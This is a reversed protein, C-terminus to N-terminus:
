SEVGLVDRVVLDGGPEWDFLMLPATAGAALEWSPLDLLERPRASAMDIAEKLSVGAMWAAHGVCVDTFVGSGALFPTGPVVVKGGPQVEFESGWESYRGPPLGALSSADCTIIARSPSKVRVIAKVISAPLHHGDPIFSAWLEDAGLQEWVYNDHRPLGHSGNGLHTSLRAGASIADRIASRDGRHSWHGRGRGRGRCRSSSRYHRAAGSGTHCGIRSGGAADQLYCFEDPDPDRVYERMRTARVMRRPFTRDKSTFAPCLQQLSRTRTAHGSPDRVWSRPGRSNTILAAATGSHGHRRCEDITRAARRHDVALQVRDGPLRQDSPRVAAPAVWGAERDPTESGVASM